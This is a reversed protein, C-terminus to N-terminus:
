LPESIPPGPLRQLLEPIALLQAEAELARGHQLIQRATHEMAPWAARLLQNAYIVVQFGAAQLESEGIQPYASPIAILPVQLTQCARALKMLRDTERQHSHLVLADAGAEVYARARDYAAQVSEGAILSELRAIVAFEQTMCANKANHLKHCFDQIPALQQPRQAGYLSNHKAGQKDELVLASVGLRELARIHYYLHEPRGGSDGDVIIPRTSNELIPGLINLRESLDLSEIDPRGQSAATTLSSLWLADFEQPRGGADSHRLTEILHATLGNHSEIVRLMPKVKLLRQWRSRRAAPTTGLEKLCEHLQTSSIDRTYPVEVLEGGWQALTEIVQQRTQQQVGQQWDDGHVVFTPRLRQLNPRYDLTNQAVVRTVGKLSAIVEKRQAYPMFPLRKYSAIAEDTLLGVTVEGLAAAQRLVKLHGPHVLDASMAVYVQAPQSHCPIQEPPDEDFFAASM